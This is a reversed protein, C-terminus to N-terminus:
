QQIAHFLSTILLEYTDFLCWFHRQHRKKYVYSLFFRIIQMFKSGYYYCNKNKRIHLLNIAKVLFDQAKDLGIGSQGELIHGRLTAYASGCDMLTHLSQYVHSHNYSRAEM